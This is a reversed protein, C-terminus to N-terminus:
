IIRWKNKNPLANETIGLKYSTIGNLSNRLKSADLNISEMIAGLLARVYPAYNEALEQIQEQKKNELNVLIKQIGFVVEDPTTAPIEKVLRIADLIRLLPINEKTISNPQLLFSIKYGARTLPRRYKNSGVTIASSIQTTLGMAAFASTGTIYGVLKGNKDLFDKVLETESPKLVGFVSKKPKYYKGKSVKEIQGQEVLRSLAKVLAQQYQPEIDFDTISLVVGPQTRELVERIQSSIVMYKSTKPHLSVCFDRKKRLLCSM